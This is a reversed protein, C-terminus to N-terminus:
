RSWGDRWEGRWRQTQGYTQQGAQTDTQWADRVKQTSLRGPIIIHEPLQHLREAREKVTERERM